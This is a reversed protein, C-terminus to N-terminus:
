ATKSAERALCVQLIGLSKDGSEHREMIKRAWRKQDTSPKLVGSAGLEALMQKATERSLETKGPAPLAPLPEPVQEWHGKRMEEVLASEWRVKLASYTQQNLDFAGIKVAAWYVAPHSWEGAEGRSRADMGVVAEYYAVLPDVTPKCLKLFEPLSPPWDRSMLAAYGRKMEEPSLKGMEEAWLQKVQAVNTGRWMDVFKNGYLAELRGFLKEVWTVPVAKISTSSNVINRM